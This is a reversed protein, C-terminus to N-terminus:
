IKVNERYIIHHLLHFLISPNQQDPLLWVHPLIIRKVQQVIYYHHECELSLYYNYERRSVTLKIYIQM